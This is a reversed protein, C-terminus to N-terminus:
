DFKSQFNTAVSNKILTNFYTFFYNRFIIIWKRTQSTQTLSLFTTSSLYFFYFYNTYLCELTFNTGVSKTVSSVLMLLLFLTWDEDIRNATFACGLRVPGRKSLHFSRTILDIWRLFSFNGIYHQSALMRSKDNLKCLNIHGVRQVSRYVNFFMPVCACRSLNGVVSQLLGLATPAERLVVSM